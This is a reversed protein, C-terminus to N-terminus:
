IGMVSQGLVARREGADSRMRREGAPPERVIKIARNYSRLARFRAMADGPSEIAMVLEDLATELASRETTTINM